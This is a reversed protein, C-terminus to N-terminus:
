ILSGGDSALDTELEPSTNSETWTGYKDGEVFAPKNNWMFTKSAKLQGIEGEQIVMTM